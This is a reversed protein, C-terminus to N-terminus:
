GGERGGLVVADGEVVHRRDLRALQSVLQLLAQRLPGILVLAERDGQLHSHQPIRTHTHTPPHTPTHTCTHNHPQTPTYTASVFFQLQSYFRFNNKVCQLLDAIM